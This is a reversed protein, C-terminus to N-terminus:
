EDPEETKMDEIQEQSPARNAARRGQDYAALAAKIGIASEGEAVSQATTMAEGLARGPSRVPLLGAEREESHRAELDPEGTLAPDTLDVVQATPEAVTQSRPHARRFDRTYAPPDALSRELIDSPVTVQVTLGPIGPVFEITMGHRAALKSVVYMGMTAELVRGLAPPNRMIQNLEAIKENTLGPGRDTITLRYGDWDFVSKIRVPTGSPSFRAANDLLEALLHALDAVAGGAVQARELAVIEVRQYDDVEGVAARVVDSIEMSRPWVRPPPEGALVLLSEANRRIRTAYHDVMYYSGLVEPSREGMELEDLLALQRDVLTANRRALNVILSSVGGHLTNMQRAAVRELSDHLESISAGLEAVEVPADYSLEIPAIPALTPDPHDIAEILATLDDNAIRRTVGSLEALRAALAGTQRRIMRLSQAVAAAVMFAIGIAMADILSFGPTTDTVILRWVLLGGVVLVLLMLPLVALMLM